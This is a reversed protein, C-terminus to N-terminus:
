QTNSAKWDMYEFYLKVARRMQSKVSVSLINFNEIQSLQYLYIPDNQVHLLADARKLRSIINSKTEKTFETNDNLWSKFRNIEM